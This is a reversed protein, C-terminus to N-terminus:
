NKLEDWLSCPAVLLGSGSGGQVSDSVGVKVRVRGKHSPRSRAVNAARKQHHKKVFLSTSPPRLGVLCITSQLKNILLEHRRCSCKLREWCIPSSRNIFARCTYPTPPFLSCELGARKQRIPQSGRELIKTKLVGGFVRPPACLWFTGRSRPSGVLNPTAPSSYHTILSPNNWSKDSGRRSANQVVPM